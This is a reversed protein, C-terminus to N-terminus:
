ESWVTPMGSKSSVPHSGGAKARRVWGICTTPGTPALASIAPM